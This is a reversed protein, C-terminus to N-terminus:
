APGPVTNAEISKAEASNEFLSTLKYLEKRSAQLAALLKEPPDNWGESYVQLSLVDDKLPQPLEEVGGPTHETIHNYLMRFKDSKRLRRDDDQLESNCISTICEVIKDAIKQYSVSEAMLSDCVKRKKDAKVSPELDMNQIHSIWSIPQCCSYLM